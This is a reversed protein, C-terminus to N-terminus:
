PHTLNHIRLIIINTIAQLRVDRGLGVVAGVDVGVGVFVMSPGIKDGVGSTSLRQSPNLPSSSICTKTPGASAAPNSGNAM